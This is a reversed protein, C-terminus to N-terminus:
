DRALWGLLLMDVSAKAAQVRAEESPVFRGPINHVSQLLGILGMAAFEPDDVQVLGRKMAHRLAVVIPMRLSVLSLNILYEAKDPNISPMDSRVIRGLELPPHTAFWEAVAVMQDRFDDGAEIIATTLGEAHRQLSREMVAIYLQEKGEPAYYYLSAHRMEVRRAIDQLRVGNYGHQNFLWEAADLIRQYTANDTPEM